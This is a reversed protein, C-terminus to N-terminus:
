LAPTGFYKAYEPFYYAYELPLRVFHCGIVIAQLYAGIFDASKVTRHSACITSLLLKVGRSSACPSWTDEFPQPVEIPITNTPKSSEPNNEANDQKQQQLFQQYAAKTKKLQRKELNDRAVLCAKLNELKGTATQKAKLVLKVPIILEDKRPQEGLIFTDHDILNKIEMCIAHLWANRVDDDLKLVAKFSQPEPLHKDVPDNTPSTTSADVALMATHIPDVSPLSEACEQFYLTMEKHLPTHRLQHFTWNILQPTPPTPGPSIDSETIPDTDNIDDEPHAPSPTGNDQVQLLPEPDHLEEIFTSPTIGLNAASGTQHTFSPESNDLSQLGNPDLHSRIPIAGAFPKSDFALASSFGEDFYADRTIVIRQPHDPSYVLWGASNEPFGIFIGRSARQLQQKYTILKNRFTPKYCKFYIPCGFVRFNALSPKRGYSYQFPTTPNGHQDTVNKAPCANIISVAYAHAHHFFAGGLQATNLLVNATNHVERWKAECIGNMEQHEPAAAELKIGLHTCETIFKASTFASGADTRIFRVSKTHGLLETQTLWSKLATIISTTSETPLGIWGTLKGPTTVIPQITQQLPSDLGFPAECSILTFNTFRNQAKDLLSKAALTSKASRSVFQGLTKTSQLCSHIIM